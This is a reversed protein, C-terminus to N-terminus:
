SECRQRIKASAFSFSLHELPQLPVGPFRTYTLLTDRTRIGDKGSIIRSVVFSWFYEGVSYLNLITQIAHTLIQKKHTQLKHRWTDRINLLVIHVAYFIRTSGRSVGSVFYVAHCSYETRQVRNLNRTSVRSVGSCFKCVSVYTEVYWSYWSSKLSRHARLLFYTYIGTIRRLCFKCIFCLDGRIELIM